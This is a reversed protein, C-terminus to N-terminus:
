RTALASAPCLDPYLRRLTELPPTELEDGPELHRNPRRRRNYEDLARDYRGNGYVQQAITWYSDEPGIRYRGTSVDAASVASAAGLGTALHPVNSALTPAPEEHHALIVGEAPKAAIRALTPVGRPRSAEAGGTKTAPPMRGACPDAPVTPNCGHNLPVCSQLRVAGPPCNTAALPRQRAAASATSPLTAAAHKQAAEKLPPSDPPAAVDLKRDSRFVAPEKTVPEAPSTANSAIPNPAVAPNAERRTHLPRPDPALSPPPASDSRPPAAASADGTPPASWPAHAPNARPHDAAAPRERAATEGEAAGAEKAWPAGAGSALPAPTTGAGPTQANWPSQPVKAQSSTLRTRSGDDVRSAILRAPQEDAAQTVPAGSSDTAAPRTLAYVGVGATGTVVTMLGAGVKAGLSM